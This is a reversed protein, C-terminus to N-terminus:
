LLNWVWLRISRPLNWIEHIVLPVLKVYILVGGSDVVFYSVAVPKRAGEGQVVLVLYVWSGRLERPFSQKCALCVVEGETFCM